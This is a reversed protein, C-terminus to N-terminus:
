KDNIYKPWIFINEIEKEFCVNQIRKTEDGVKRDYHKMTQKEKEKVLAVVTGVAPKNNRVNLLLEMCVHKNSKINMIVALLKDM